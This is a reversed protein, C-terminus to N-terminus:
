TENICEVNRDFSMRSATIVKQVATDIEAPLSKASFAVVVQPLSAISTEVVKPMAHIPPYQDISM